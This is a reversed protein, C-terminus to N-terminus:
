AREIVFSLHCIVFATEVRNAPVGYSSDTMQSRDDTM